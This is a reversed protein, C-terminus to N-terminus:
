QSSSKLQDQAFRQMEDLAEEYSEAKGALRAEKM